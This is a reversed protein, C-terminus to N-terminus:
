GGLGKLRQDHDNLRREHENIRGAHDACVPGKGESVQTLWDHIGDVRQSLRGIMYGLSAVTVVVGVLNVVLTIVVSENM